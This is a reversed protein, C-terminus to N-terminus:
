EILDEDSDNHDSGGNNIPVTQPGLPVRRDDEQVLLASFHYAPIREVCLKRRVMFLGAVALAVVVVSVSVVMVLVTFQPGDPESASVQSSSECSNSVTKERRLPTFGGECRDSPVKRYGSTQLEEKEGNLCVELVHDKFDTQEMCESTNEHRYYGYDCLYDERTCLCPAQQRRIVYDRGNRCVSQKKLRRFTERYGLVCGDTDSDQSASSHALWEVYDQEECERVLLHQFDVTVAVWTARYEEEPRYGWITLNMTKTGPESALGVFFIPQDTFNYLKWCQGEDTSFKVTCILRDSHSEVAVVLGGSDLIAYHHPGMLTRAWTYGGDDSVYVDPQASTVSDGMSGHAIVLGVASPDSLPLLPALGNYRSYEGHIHLNCNKTNKGCEANEPKSLLRWEGGRDFSIVTRIRDDEELVNTLYVGRLSTINTFDSKGEGGFLHRELSKSYLIGRDDSTYITGFYTGAGPDDVHMFIMDEDGDLVSYFQEITASPLQAKNFIDGHNSSVYIVRPEGQKEMVSTFLFGGIYGFSFINHTITTFTRGLDETRKLFLEGRRDADVTGNPSCSFFLTIGSGWMFSHVGEHPKNWKNGFDVSLWLGGDISITVLNTPTIGADTSTFIIGGNSELAPVDGTLIVKQSNGPGTSIGFEKRILTNNIVHSMDHFTKGYDESRYLRSSGGGVVVGVPPSITSLVLIVGTGDGVWTLTFSSGDDGHFATEHTNQDLKKWDSASLKLICSTFSSGRARSDRKERSSTDEQAIRSIIVTRKRGKEQKFGEASVVAVLLLVGFLVLIRETM